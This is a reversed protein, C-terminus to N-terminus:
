FRGRGSGLWYTKERKEGDVIGVLVDVTVPITWSLSARVPM